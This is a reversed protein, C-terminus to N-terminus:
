FVRTSGYALSVLAIALMFIKLDSGIIHWHSVSTYVIGFVGGLAVGAGAVNYSGELTTIYGGLLLSVVGVVMMHSFRKDQYERRRKKCQSQRIEEEEQQELTMNPMFRYKCEEEMKDYGLVRDILLSVLTIYVVGITVYVLYEANGSYSTDERGNNTQKDM